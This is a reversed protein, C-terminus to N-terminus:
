WRTKELKQNESQTATMWSASDHGMVDHQKRMKTAPVASWSRGSNEILTRAMSLGVTKPVM